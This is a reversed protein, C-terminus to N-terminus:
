GSKFSRIQFHSPLLTLLAPPVSLNLPNSAWEQLPCQQEGGEGCRGRAIEVAMHVDVTIPSGPFTLLGTQAHKKKKQTKYTGTM